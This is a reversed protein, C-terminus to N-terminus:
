IFLFQGLYRVLLFTKMAMDMPENCPQSIMMRRMPIRSCYRLSTFGSVGLTQKRDSSRSMLSSSSCVPLFCAVNLKSSVCILLCTYRHMAMRMRVDTGDGFIM